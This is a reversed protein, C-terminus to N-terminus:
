KEQASVSLSELIRLMQSINALISIVCKAM